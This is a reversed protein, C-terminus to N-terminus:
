RISPEASASSATWSVNMRAHRAYSRKSPREASLDQSYRMAVFTQKSMSLPRSRRARGISRPGACSGISAFRCVRESAVHIWGIGSLM